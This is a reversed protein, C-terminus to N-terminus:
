ADIGHQELLREGSDNWVEWRVIVGDRIEFRDVYRNGDFETGDPWAGYLAGLSYVVAIGDGISVDTREMRKRVWAYRKANFATIDAASDFPRGGSFVIKCDPAVLHAVRDFEGAMQAELFGLIMAKVDEAELPTPTDAM